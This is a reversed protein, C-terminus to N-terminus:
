KSSSKKVNSGYLPYSILLRVHKSKHLACSCNKHYLRREINMDHMSLTGGLVCHLMMEAAATSM